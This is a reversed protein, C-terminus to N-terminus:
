LGFLVRVEDELETPNSVQDLLEERLVQIFEQEGWRLAYHVQHLTQDFEGALQDRTPRSGEEYDVRYRAFVEVQIEKDRLTATERMRALVNHVVQKKWESQFAEEFEEYSSSQNDPIDGLGRDDEVLADMSLIPGQSPRRKLRNSDRYTKSLFRKLAACVFTRFRGRDIDAWQVFDKEYFKLFFAQCLDKAEERSCNWYRRIFWYAPPWYKQCLAEMSSRFDPSNADQCGVILSWSTMPFAHGLTGAEVLGSLIEEAQGEGVESDQNLSMGHIDVLYPFVKGSLM